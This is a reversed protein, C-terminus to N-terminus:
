VSSSSVAEEEETETQKIIVHASEIRHEKIEQIEIDFLDTSIEFTSGDEPISGYLGLAYGSFTEADCDQIKINLADEVDSILASGM